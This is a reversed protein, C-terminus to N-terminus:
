RGIGTYKRLGTNFVVRFILYFLLSWVVAGVFSQWIETPNMKGLYIAIPNYFIYKFPLLNVLWMIKNPLFALPITAGALFKVLFDLLTINADQDGFHFTLSQILLNFMTNVFFGLLLAIIFYVLNTATPLELYQHAWMIILLVVPIFLSFNVFVGSLGDIFHILRTSYPRILDNTFDGNWVMEGLFIEDVTDFRFIIATLFYYTITDNLAFSGIESVGGERYVATWVAFSVGFYILNFLMGLFVDAKYSFFVKLEIIFYTWYKKM